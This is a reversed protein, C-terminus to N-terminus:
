QGLRSRFLIILTLITTVASTYPTIERLVDTVYQRRRELIIIDNPQVSLDAKQIGELTSLDVMYIQPNKVDGRIVKIKYAKTRSDMGGSRAILEIINIPVEDLPVINTSGDRVVFARRNSVRLSVWPDVFLGAYKEALVRELSTETHGSVFFDGLVPLKVFGEQDVTFNFGARRQSAGMPTQGSSSGLVDILRFGDRAFIQLTFQDGPQILYGDVVKNAMDFYQYDKQRFMQNPYLVRCSSLTLLLAIAIFFLLKYKM